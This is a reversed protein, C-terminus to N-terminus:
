KKTEEKPIYLIPSELKKDDSTVDQRQKWKHKNAMQLAYISPDLKGKTEKFNGNKDKYAIPLGMMGNMGTKEWWLLSKDLGKKISDAFETHADRWAYLTDRSVDIIAAFSEFSLGKAMHDILQQGYEPRYLSPRGDPITPATPAQGSTASPPTAKPHTTSNVGEIHAQTPTGTKPLLTTNEMSM